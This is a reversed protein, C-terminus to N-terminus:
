SKVTLLFSSFRKRKKGQCHKAKANEKFTSRGIAFNEFLDGSSTLPEFWDVEFALGCHM